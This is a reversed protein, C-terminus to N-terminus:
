MREALVLWDWPKRTGARRPRRLGEKQWPYTVRQISKAHFGHRALPEHLEDRTFHKQRSGGRDVLGDPAEGKAEALSTGYAVREVMRDSEISPVVILAHGKKKTVKAISSWMSERIRTEPMTIVNM